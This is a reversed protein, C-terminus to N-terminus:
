NDYISKKTLVFYLMDLEEMTLCVGLGGGDFLEVIFEGENLKLEKWETSYSSMLCHCHPDASDKPLRLIYSYESVDRDREIVKEFGVEILKDETIPTLSLKIAVDNM